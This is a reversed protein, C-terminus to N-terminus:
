AFSLYFVSLRIAGAGPTTNCTIRAKAAAAQTPGAATTSVNGFMAALGPVNASAATINTSAAQFRAATTGDGVTFNAATTIDVTTKAITGLIIANAPLLNAASDTTAGGTSLTMVETNVGLTLVEGTPLTFTMPLQAAVLSGGSNFTAMLVGNVLFKLARLTGGASGKQVDLTFDTGNNSIELREYNDNASNDKYIRVGKMPAMFARFFTDLDNPPQGTKGFVVEDPRTTNAM